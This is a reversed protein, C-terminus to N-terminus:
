FATRGASSLGVLTFLFRFEFENPNVKEIVGFDIYWCQQASIYRLFYRNGIFSGANVDYRGVYATSFRENLRFIISADFEKLIRDTITVYSIGVTTHRQLHQLLPPTAPLPRPDRLFLGFRAAVMDGRDVDYTTDAAFTVYPVPTLRASIDLDSLHREGKSLQRTPDYAQFLTLRALERVETAAREPAEGDLPRTTFKGLLRNSVGYVLLNRRNVRDLADYLPLDNQEVFPIYLYSVEPEVVHQLRLLRGWGVEFIRSFRTGIQAQLQGVERTRSSRLRDSEPLPLGGVDRATLHYITEHGVATFSGFAYRGLRFPLSLSPALDFRQGAYGRNRYFHVGEVAMGAELRNKWLFRHGRWQVRPLVQFALDQDDILDQYYSAQARLLARDWTKVVGGHSDTFRRARLERSDADLGGPYFPVNIERLFLDDSVFFLDSYFHLDSAFRQRHIGTVSWRNVPTTITAPGRIQENFYSALLEGETNVSPAYRYEGLVGVRAATEMDATITLDHSKTIAWYFPQQWQFGRKNSVGYRPFLFGSQRESRVPIIGYPLYLVPVGRVRLVGRAFEGRGRLNVDVREAGISWDARQLDECRCTTFAGDAIHYTQGYSKQLTKGTLTYQNRPLYVTGNAITGTEDDMELWLAEAEIRGRPDDVVVDGRAEVTNARRNVTITKATVTTDGKTVVVDGSATVTDSTSEYTLRNAKVQVPERDHNREQAYVPFLLWLWVAVISYARGQRM